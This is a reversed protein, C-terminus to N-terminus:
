DRGRKSLLFALGILGLSVFGLAAIALLVTDNRGYGYGNYGNTQMTQIENGPSMVSLSPYGQGKKIVAAINNDTECTCPRVSAKQVDIPNEMDIIEENPMATLRVTGTFMKKWPLYSTGIDIDTLKLTYGHSVYYQNAVLDMMVEESNNGPYVVRLSALPSLGNISKPYTGLLQVSLNGIHTYELSTTVQASEEKM